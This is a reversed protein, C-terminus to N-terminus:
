FAVRKDVTFRIGAITIWWMRGSIPLIVGLNCKPALRPQEDPGIAATLASGRYVTQDDGRIQVVDVRLGPQGIYEGADSLM